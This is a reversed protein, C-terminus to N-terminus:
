MPCDECEKCIKATCPCGSSPCFTTSVIPGAQRRCAGDPASCFDTSGRQHKAVIVQSFGTVALVCLFLKKIM